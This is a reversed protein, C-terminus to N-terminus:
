AFTSPVTYTPPALVLLYTVHDNETRHLYRLYRLPTLALMWKKRIGYVELLNATQINM